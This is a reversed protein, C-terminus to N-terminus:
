DLGKHNSTSTPHSELLDPPAELFHITTTSEGDVIDAVAGRAESTTGQDLITAITNRSSTLMAQESANVVANIHHIAAQFPPLLPPLNLRPARAILDARAKGWESFSELLYDVDCLIGCDHVVTTGDPGIASSFHILKIPMGCHQLFNRMKYLIRYAPEADFVAATASRFAALQSSEKGYRRSLRTYTHDLFLKVSALYNALCRNTTLTLSELTTRNHFDPGPMHLVGAIHQNLEELNADVLPLIMTSRKYETLHEIANKYTALEETTLERIANIAHIRASHDLKVSLLYVTM